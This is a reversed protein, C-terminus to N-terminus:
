LSEWLFEKIEKETNIIEERFNDASVRVAGNGLVILQELNDSTVVRVRHKRGIEHTVKEIYMDATEAEKTYVVHINHVKEVERVNGKVKYADFVIITNGNRVGQYNCVINILTNRAHDLSEAALSKLNDWAFIVNYGDILLYEDGLPKPASTKHRTQEKPASKKTYLASYPLRKIPGYTKEFIEILEKDAAISDIYKKVRQVPIKEEPEEGRNVPIHMYSDAEDWKVTYGAGHACFVSDATNELDSDANYGIKEVIEKSNHCEDYGMFVCSLSGKGRTYSIVEKHYDMIESAPVSGRLIATDGDTEPPSFRSSMNQLDTMARGVCESPVSLTFSLWPELLISNAFRLGQRVARYTAQRFDGGETHKAHARGATLTIKIDTIPSGTLVGKHIKEHLHTLILNQKNRDLIDEPCDSSFVLGAGRKLPKLMLQVEAYHRLPEYHGAGISPETITEKYAIKGQSFDVDMNFRSMMVSKLIETQVEGMLQVTIEQLAPNWGINLKPEEQELVRLAYLLKSPETGASKARYTLVPQLIGDFCDKEFGLGEGAYTKTLGTVACVAGTEAFDATKYKAGNYIRIENIKEDSIIDKVRVKGGTIKLHTLRNSGDNTIKYVKAGFVEPRDSPKTLKSVASVFEDVGDFKLASGFFVPFLRRQSITDRIVGDSVKGDSMFEDLAAESCVALQEFFAGDHQASFDVFGDGLKKTLMETIEDHSYDMIDTKNVFVFTPVNYKKLLQWLTETHNQVGDTGSIILIAYDLVSLTRETEASFDAHGPTDLLTFSSGGASFEAQKSFVTIGRKREIENNDLLTDRHDVRGAKRITGTLYLIAEALTTKGSDVHALIGLVYKNLNIM